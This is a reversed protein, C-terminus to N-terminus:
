AATAAQPALLDAVDQAVIGLLIAEGSAVATLDYRGDEDPRGTLSLSLPVAGALDLTEGLNHNLGSGAALRTALTMSPLRLVTRHDVGTADFTRITLAAQMTTKSAPTARITLTESSM